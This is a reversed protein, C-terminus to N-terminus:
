KTTDTKSQVSVIKIEGPKPELVLVNYAAGRQLTLGEVPYSKGDKGFVAFDVKVANMERSTGAGPAVPGAVPIKGDATKLEIGELSSFNYVSVLAKARNESATDPVVEVKGNLLVASYFKGAELEFPRVAEGFALDVKLQKQVYYPSVHGFELAEYKKGAASPIQGLDSAKSDAQIFRVFAAGEPPIPAYLGEDPGAARAAGFGSILTFATLFAILYRM